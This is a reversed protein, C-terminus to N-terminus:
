LILAHFHVLFRHEAGDKQFQIGTARAGVVFLSLLKGSSADFLEVDSRRSTVTLAAVYKGDPSVTVLKREAALAPSDSKPPNKVATSRRRFITDPSTPRPLPAAPHSNSEQSRALKEVLQELRQLRAELNGPLVFRSFGRPLRPQCILSAQHLTLRRSRNSFFSQMRRSRLSCTCRNVATSFFM